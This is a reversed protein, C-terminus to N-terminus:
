WSFHLMIQDDDWPLADVWSRIRAAADETVNEGRAYEDVEQSMAERSYEVITNMDSSVRWTEDDDAHLELHWVFDSIEKDPRALYKIQTPIVGIQLAM